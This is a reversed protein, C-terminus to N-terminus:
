APNQSQLQLFKALDDESKIQTGQSQGDKRVYIKGHAVTVRMKMEKTEMRTKMYIQRNKSTLSHNFFINDKDTKRKAIMVNNKEEYSKFTVVLLTKLGSVVNIVRKRVSEVRSMDCDINKSALLDVFVEKPPKANLISDNIGVIEMNNNLTQQKLDNVEANLLKVSSSLSNVEEMLRANEKMVKGMEEKMAEYISEHSQRM